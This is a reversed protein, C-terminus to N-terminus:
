GPLDEISSFIKMMLGNCAEQKQMINLLRKGCLIVDKWTETEEKNQFLDTINIKFNMGERQLCDMMQSFPKFVLFPACVDMEDHFAEAKVFQKKDNKSMLKSCNKM